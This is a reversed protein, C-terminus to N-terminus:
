YVRSDDNVFPDSTYTGACLPGLRTTSSVSMTSGGLVGGVERAFPALQASAFVGAGYCSLSVTKVLLSDWKGVRRQAVQRPPM